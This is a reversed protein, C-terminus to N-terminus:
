KASQNIDGKIFREKKLNDVTYTTLNKLEKKVKELSIDSFYCKQLGCVQYERQKKAYKYIFPYKFEELSEKLLGAKPGKILYAGRNKMEIANLASPSYSPQLNIEHAYNLLTSNVINLLKYDGEILVTKILNELNKAVPSKYGKDGIEAEVRFERGSNEYWKGNDYFLNVSQTVIEKFLNLYNEDLTTQYASFLADAVFSYDELLGEQLPKNPLLVQHYLKGKKYMLDLLKHLSALAEKAYRLDVASADLKAKIYLANWSTIIKKDIFPFEKKTRYEKLFTREREYLNDMSKLYPVSYDGSKFNGEKEIGFYDLVEQARKKSVGRKILYDFVKSYNYIYYFGEEEKGNFNKSDASIASYYLGNKILNKDIQAITEKIVKAYLEKKTIKYAKAYVSILEANAYLMKEFHPTRWRADICYRFFGGDIQDYIGSLAMTDLTSLAMNLASDDGNILYINLLADISNPQPFKPAKGFGSNNSDYYSKFEKLAKQLLGDELITNRNKVKKYIKVAKEIDEALSELKERPMKAVKNLLAILDTKPMYTGFFVAKKNPLLIANLPWGGPRNNMILYRLQFYDDIYKLREKDVKISIYYRNLIDAVDKQSFSEKEMVHCWHCTSYGISVFILKNEKKAKEFAKGSWEHWNVPNDAHQLLYPSTSSNLENGFNLITFFAIFVFFRLM